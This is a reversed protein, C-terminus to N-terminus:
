FEDFLLLCYGLIRLPFVDLIYYITHFQVIFCIPFSIHVHMHVVKFEDHKM